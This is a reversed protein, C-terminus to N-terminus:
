KPITYTSEGHQLSVRSAIQDGNIDKTLETNIEAHAAVEKDGDAVDVDDEVEDVEDRGAGELAWDLFRTFRQVAERRTLWKTMQQIYGKRNSAQYARKAFDIHLQESAETNYGGTVGHSRIMAAYHVMSHVKPINFHERIGDDVFIHKHAHFTHLSDELKKLSEDTHLELHSYYIFDLVARVCIIVDPKATGALVGLFVKEMNKYETGTWQTVLSIGKKFHCLDPHRPMAMYRRDVEAKTADAAKM